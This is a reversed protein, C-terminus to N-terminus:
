PLSTFSVSAQSGDIAFGYDTFLSYIYTQKGPTESGFGWLDFEVKGGPPVTVALDIFTQVTVEAPGDHRTLKLRYGPGWATSGTNKIYIAIGFGENGRYATKASPYLWVKLVEAAVAPLTPTSTLTLTPTLTPPLPTMTPPLPTATASPVPTLTPSPSLSAQATWRADITNVANAVMTAQAQTSIPTAPAPTAATCGALALTVLISLPYYISKSATVRM